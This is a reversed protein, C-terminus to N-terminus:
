FVVSTFFKYGLHLLVTKASENAVDLIILEILGVFSCSRLFLIDFEKYIAVHWIM